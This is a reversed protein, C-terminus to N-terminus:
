APIEVVKRVKIFDAQVQSVKKYYFGVIGFSGKDSWICVALDIDSAKADACKTTGGQPGASVNKFTGAHLSSKLGITMGTAFAAPQPIDGAVAIVMTLKRNAIDGYFASVTQRVNPASNKMQDSTSEALSNLEPEDLKPQGLLKAPAVVKVIAASPASSTGPDPSPDGSPDSPEVSPDATTSSSPQDDNANLIMAGAFAGGGLCLVLLVAGLTIWLGTHSKKPPEPPPYVGTYPQQGYPQQGYPQGSTPQGYGPQAYAPQGSTPQGYPQQGYPQGSTPQGYGPQGYGPQGYTPPQGYPQGPSTPQGYGPQGYPDGSVPQGYAPQGYPQGSTPQGYAPQGSTPQPGPPPPYAPYQGPSYTPYGSTPTAEPPTQYPDGPPPLPESM